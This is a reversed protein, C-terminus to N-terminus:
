AIRGHTRRTTKVAVYLDTSDQTLLAERGAFPIGRAPQEPVGLM